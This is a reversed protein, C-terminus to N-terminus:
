WPNRLGGILTIDGCSRQVKINCDATGLTVTGGPWSQAFDNLRTASITHTLTTASCTPTPTGGSCQLSGAETFGVVYTGAACVQGALESIGSEGQPGTAGAEGKPGQPGTAGTDGKPGQPGTAGTDGKPGQPGTAGTDGKPGQPGTEGKPGAPGQIGQENWYLPVESPRCADPWRQTTTDIFRLNGVQKQYCAHIVTPTSQAEGYAVGGAAILAVAAPVAWWLRRTRM